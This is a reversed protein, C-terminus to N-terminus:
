HWTCCRRFYIHAIKQSRRKFISNVGSHDLFSDTVQHSSIIEPNDNVSGARILGFGNATDNIRKLSDGITKVKNAM